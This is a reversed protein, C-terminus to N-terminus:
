DQTTEFDIEHGKDKTKGEKPKENIGERRSAKPKNQEEQELNKLHSSLNNIQSKRKQHICKTNYIGRETSCLQIGCIKIHQIKMKMENM